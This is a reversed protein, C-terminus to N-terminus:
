CPLQFLFELRCLVIWLDLIFPSEVDSQYHVEARRKYDSGVVNIELQVFTESSDLIWVLPDNLLRSDNARFRDM